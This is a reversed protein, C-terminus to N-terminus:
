CRGEVIDRALKEYRMCYTDLPIVESVVKGETTDYYSIRYALINKDWEAGKHINGDSTVAAGYRRLAESIVDEIYNKIRYRSINGAPLLYNGRRGDVKWYSMIKIISCFDARKM